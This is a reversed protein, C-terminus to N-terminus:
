PRLADAIAQVADRYSGPAPLCFRIPQDAPAGTPLTIALFERDAGLDCDQRRAAEAAAAPDALWGAVAARTAPPLTHRTGDALVLDGGPDV